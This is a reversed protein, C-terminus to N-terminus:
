APCGELDRETVSTPEGAPDFPRQLTFAWATPGHARLHLVREEAEAVSPRHGAAVWWCATYAERMRSFWERRRRLVERHLGGYVFESLSALDQWVSMNVIVGPSDGVDFRFGEVDTANGDDGELRWVYGASREALENVPDLLEVFGQLQTSDLPALLTGVNVQALEFSTM